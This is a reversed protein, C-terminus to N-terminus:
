HNYLCGMRNVSCRAYDKVCFVSNYVPHWRKQFVFVFFSAKKSIFISGKYLKTLGQKRLCLFSTKVSYM